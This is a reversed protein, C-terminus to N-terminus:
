GLCKRLVASLNYTSLPKSLMEKIGKSKAMEPSIGEAFGSYLIVPIDPRLKLLAEAFQIGTMDPMTYDTIVLDFSDPQMRFTELAETSSTKTVVQYGLTVLIQGYIETLFEEDDVLLINESGRLVPKEAKQQAVGQDESLPLFIQFTTGKGVESSVRIAGGHETVIGHVVSLGLGTGEGKEKTTFYPDFIRETIEHPIGHGTDSVTLKLFRGPDLHFLAASKESQLIAETLSLELTGGEKRMAHKANTCLNMLVQHIQVPDGVILDTETELHQHIQITTPLTARLLKLAEKIIPSVRITRREKKTQRSFTLIQSVLDRARLGSQLVKELRRRAKENEAVDELTLETYGIIAGLINNFDHAIGGALTGIAEMKQAQRLQDELRRQETIDEYIVFQDGLAMTVPKFHIIKESGDKCTVNFIRPRAEGLKAEKQDSIWASIVQHRSERDPFAKFFWEKGTPIDVLNYGFIQVFKPNLYEYRGDRRILSIGIPSKEVLIQFRQKEMELATEANKRELEMEARNAFLDLMKRKFPENEIKDNHMLSLIGFVKGTSDRLPSGFYSYIGMEVLAKDKVFESQVDELYLCNNQALVRECPTGALAYEFEDRYGEDTWMTLAKVREQNEGTLVGIMAYKIDLTGALDRVLNRIFEDGAHRVTGKVLTELTEEAKIRETLDNGISLIEVINGEADKISENTWSIWVREGNSKINQNVNSKYRLPHKIIDKIMEVLNRATTETEPVITGILPKDLIEKEQYKFFELGFPNLYRINGNLDFKLIISNASEILTRYQAESKRLAEEAQVRDTINRAVGVIEKRGSILSGGSQIYIPEGEKTRLKIVLPKNQVGTKLMEDMTEVLHEVSQDPHLIAFYNLNKIDNRKYGLLDLAADNADIFNGSGDSVFVLNIPSNYLAHYREQSERLAEQAKKRETTDESMYVIHILQATENKIPFLRAERWVRNGQTDIDSVEGSWMKGKELVTNRIEQINELLNSDESLFSGWHKGIVEDISIKYTDLLKTNAYEVKGEPDLVAISNIDQEFVLLLVNLEEEMKKRELAKKELEVVRQELEEYTPKRSM